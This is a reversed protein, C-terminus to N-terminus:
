PQLVLCPTQIQTKQRHLDAAPAAAEAAVAEAATVAVFAAHKVADDAYGFAAAAAAAAAAAQAPGGPADTHHSPLLQPQPCDHAGCSCAVRGLHM